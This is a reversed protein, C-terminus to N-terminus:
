DATLVAPFGPARLDTGLADELLKVVMTSWAGGGYQQRARIFTQDVLGALELPVGFERGLKMAAMAAFWTAILQTVIQLLSMGLMVVGSQWIVETDGKAVGDDIIQANLTPLQFNAYAAVIQFVLVGILLPWYPKLYRVLLKALM